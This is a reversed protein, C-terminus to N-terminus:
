DVRSTQDLSHSTSWSGTNAEPGWFGSLFMGAFIDRGIFVEKGTGEDVSYTVEDVPLDIRIGFPSRLLGHM